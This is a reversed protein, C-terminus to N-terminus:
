NRRLCHVLKKVIRLQESYALSYSDNESMQEPLLPVHIFLARVAPFHSLMRYYLENCIFTGASFSIQFDSDSAFLNELPVQTMLALEQNPQIPGAAPKLGAEDAYQSYVWNLAIKEVCIKQRNRAQGLMIVCDPKAETVQKQLVSFATGFEVPLVVSQIDSFELALAEAILASPNIKQGLFPKFGSVLIKM